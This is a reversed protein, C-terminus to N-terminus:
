CQNMHQKARQNLLRLAKLWNLSKPQALAKASSCRACEMVRGSGWLTHEARYM